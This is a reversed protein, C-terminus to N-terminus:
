NQSPGVLFGEKRCLIQVHTDKHFGIRVGTAAAQLTTAMALDLPAASARGRALARVRLGDSLALACDASHSCALLGCAAPPARRPPREAAVSPSDGGGKCLYIM